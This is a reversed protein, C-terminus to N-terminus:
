KMSEREGERMFRKECSFVLKEHNSYTVIVKEPQTKLTHIMQIVSDFINCWDNM